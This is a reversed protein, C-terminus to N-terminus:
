GPQAEDAPPRITGMLPEGFIIQTRCRDVQKQVALRDFILAQLHVTDRVAVHLMYDDEGSVNYLAIVEPLAAAEAVFGDVAERSHPSLRVGIFAQLPRGVRAPDVVARMQRVVGAARLKRVRELCTSAAIGM